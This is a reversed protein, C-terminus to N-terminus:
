NPHVNVNVSSSPIVLNLACMPYMGITVRSRCVEELARSLLACRVAFEAKGASALVFDNRGQAPM